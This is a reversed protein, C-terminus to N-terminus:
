AEWMSVRKILMLWYQYLSSEKSTDKSSKIHQYTQLYWRHWDTFSSSWPGLFNPGNASTNGSKKLFKIVYVHVLSKHDNGPQKPSNKKTNMQIYKHQVHVEYVLSSTKLSHLISNPQLPIILLQYICVPM